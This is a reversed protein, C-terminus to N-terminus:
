RGFFIKRLKERGVGQVLEHFVVFIFFLILMWIQATWFRPPSVNCPMHQWAAAMDKYKFLLPLLRELTIFLSGFIYYVMTKWATSYILPRGSFLNLFPLSDAILIVKGIVLSSIVIGPFTILHSGAEQLIWGFTMNFLNIAIFFYLVAPFTHAIEKKLWNLM